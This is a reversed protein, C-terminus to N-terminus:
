EGEAELELNRLAEGIRTVVREEEDEYQEMLIQFVAPAVHAEIRKIAVHMPALLLHVLEHIISQRTDHDGEAADLRAWCQRFQFCLHGTCNEHGGASEPVHGAEHLHMDVTWDEMQLRKMWNDNYRALRLAERKTM